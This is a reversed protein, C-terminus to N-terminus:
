MYRDIEITRDDLMGAITNVEFLEVKILSCVGDSDTHAKEIRKMAKAYSKASIYGRAELANEGLDDYWKVFFRFMKM